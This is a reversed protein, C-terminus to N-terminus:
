DRGLVARQRIRLFLFVWGSGLSPDYDAIIQEIGRAGRAIPLVGYRLSHMASKSRTLTKQADGFALM